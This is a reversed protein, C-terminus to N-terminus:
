TWAVQDSCVSYLLLFNNDDLALPKFISLFFLCLLWCRIICIYTDYVYNRYRIHHFYEADFLM